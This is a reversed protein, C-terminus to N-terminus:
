FPQNRLLVVSPAAGHSTGDERRERGEGRHAANRLAGGALAAATVAENWFTDSQPV